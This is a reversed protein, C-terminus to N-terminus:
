DHVPKMAKRMCARIAMFLEGAEDTDFYEAAKSRKDFASIRSLIDVVELNSVAIPARASQFIWTYWAWLEDEFEDFSSWEFYRPNLGYRFLVSRAPGKELHQMVIAAADGGTFEVYTILKSKDLALEHNVDECIAEHYCYIMSHVMTEWTEGAFDSCEYVGRQGGNRDGSNWWLLEHGQWAEPIGSFSEASTEIEEVADEMVEGYRCNRMLFAEMGEVVQERSRM